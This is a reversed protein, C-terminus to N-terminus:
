YKSYFNHLQFIQMDKFTNVSQVNEIGVKKPPPHRDHGEVYRMIGIVLSAFLYFCKNLQWFIQLLVLDFVTFLNFFDM